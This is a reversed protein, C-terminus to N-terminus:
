GVIFSNLNSSFPSLIPFIYTFLDRQLLFYFVIQCVVHSACYEQLFDEVYRQLRLYTSLGGAKGM